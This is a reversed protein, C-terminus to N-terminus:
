RNIHLALFNDIIEIYNQIKRFKLEFRLLDMHNGGESSLNSFLWGCWCEMPKIYVSDGLWECAM